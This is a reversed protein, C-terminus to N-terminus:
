EETGIYSIDGDADPLGLGSLQYFRDSDTVITKDDCRTYAVRRQARDVIVGAGNFGFASTTRFLSYRFRGVRFSVASTGGRAAYEQLYKFASSAPVPTRPYQMEISAPGHGLRYQLYGADRSLDPSACLSVIKGSVLSCSFVTTEAPSCLSGPVNSASDSAGAALGAACLLLGVALARRCAMSSAARRQSADSSMSGDVRM